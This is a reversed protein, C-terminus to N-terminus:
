TRVEPPDPDAAEILWLGSSDPIPNMHFHPRVAPADTSFLWVHPRIERYACRGESVRDVRGRGGSIEGEISLYERRHEAIRTAATVFLQLPHNRCRWTYLWDGELSEIMFDFHPEDIGSHWLVVFSRDFEPKM